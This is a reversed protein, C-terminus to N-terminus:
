SAAFTEISETTFDIVTYEVNPEFEITLFVSEGASITQMGGLFTAPPEGKYGSEFWREVDDVSKGPEFAVLLLEHPETGGNEFEVTQEGSSFTPVQLGADTATITADPEPLAAGTDGAITFVKHM